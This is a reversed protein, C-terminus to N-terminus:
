FTVTDPDRIRARLYDHSQRDGGPERRVIEAVERRHDGFGMGIYRGWEVLPAVVALHRPRGKTTTYVIPEISLAAWRAVEGTQVLAFRPEVRHPLGRALYTLVTDRHSYGVFLVVKNSFPEVLFRRAHGQTLYARGFDSDTLVLSSPDGGVAGHLYVIGRADDGVPLAPAVYEHVEGPWRAEAARTLLRDFNTTVIRLQGPDDFLGVIARHLANESGASRIIAEVREHVRYGSAEVRGLYVDLPESKKRTKGSERHITAVMEAYTPIRSPRPASVGAGAFIVLRGDLRAELLGDPVEVGGLGCATITNTV